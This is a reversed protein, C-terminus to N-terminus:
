AAVRQESVAANKAKVSKRRRPRMRTLFYRKMASQTIEEECRVGFPRDGYVDKWPPEARSLQALQSGSFIGYRRWVQELLAREREDLEEYPDTRLLHPDIAGWGYKKFRRWLSPILPGLAWAEIPDDFLPRGLLALSWGQAFYCLKQMKLNSILDGMGIHIKLLFYDAVADVSRHNKKAVPKSM